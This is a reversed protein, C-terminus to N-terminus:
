KAPTESGTLTDHPPDPTIPYTSQEIKTLETLMQQTNSEPLHSVKQVESNDIVEYQHDTHNGISNEQTLLSQPEVIGQTDIGKNQLAKGMMKTLRKTVMNAVVISVDALRKELLKDINDAMKQEMEQFLTQNNEEWQNFKAAIESEVRNLQQNWNQVSQGKDCATGYIGDQTNNIQTTPKRQESNSGELKREVMSQSEESKPYSQQRKLNDKAAIYTSKNGTLKTTEHKAHDSGTLGVKTVQDRKSQMYRLMKSDNQRFRRTLVEAYTSVTNVVKETKSLKYGKGGQVTQHVLLKTEQDKKHKYIRTSHQKIYDVVLQVSEQQIVLIWQGKQETQYTREVSFIGPGQLLIDRITDKNNDSSNMEESSIGEIVFSTTTQIFNQQELLLNHLADKGELLHIGTPVFLGKTIKNQSCAEVFLYKLYHADEVTCHLSLVETHVKGWKKLNTEIHFKPVPTETDHTWNNKICWDSVVTEDFCVKTQSLQKEIDSVMGQKNTLKPHLLTFFGPSSVVRTSYFDPKIWINQELLLDKVPNTFKMRNITIRSEIVCYINVKSNGKRFHQERMQFSEKFKDDEPLKSQNDWLITNGNSTLIKISPDMTYMTEFLNTSSSIINFHGTTADINYEIRVPTTIKEKEDMMFIGRDYSRSNVTTERTNTIVRTKTKAQGTRMKDTAKFRGQTEKVSVQMQENPTHKIKRSIEEWETDSASRDFKRSKINPKNQADLKEGDSQHENVAVQSIEKSSDANKNLMEHKRRQLSTYTHDTHKNAYKRENRLQANTAQDIQTLHARKPKQPANFTNSKRKSLNSSEEVKSQWQTTPMLDDLIEVIDMDDDSEDDSSERSYISSISQTEQESDVHEIDTASSNTGKECPQCEGVPTLDTTKESGVQSANIEDLVHKEKHEADIFIEQSKASPSRAINDGKKKQSTQISRKTSDKEAYEWIMNDQELQYSTHTIPGPSNHNDSVAMKNKQNDPKQSKSEDISDHKGRVLSGNKVESRKAVVTAKSELGFTNNDIADQNRSASSVNDENTDTKADFDGQVIQESDWVMGSQFTSNGDIAVDIREQKIKVQSIRRENEEIIDEKKEREFDWIMSDNERQSSSDNNDGVSNNMEKMNVSQRHKLSINGEGGFTELQKQAITDQTQRTSGTTVNDVPVQTNEIELINTDGNTENRKTPGTCFNGVLESTNRMKSKSGVENKQHKNEDSVRQTERHRESIIERKRLLETLKVVKEHRDKGGVPESIQALSNHYQTWEARQNRGRRTSTSSESMTM